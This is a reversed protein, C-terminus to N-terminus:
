SPHWAARIKGANRIRSDDARLCRGEKARKLSDADNHREMWIFDTGPTSKIHLSYAAHELCIRTMPFVEAIQTACAHECAALYAAHSRPMLLFALLRDKPEHLHNSITGFCKKIRALRDFAPRKNHFTALRNNFAEGFFDSLPDGGFQPPLPIVNNIANM